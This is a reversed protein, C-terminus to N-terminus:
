SYGSIGLGAGDDNGVWYQSHEVDAILPVSLDLGFTRHLPLNEMVQKTIVSAEDVYDDRVESGIGDHLTMVMGAKRPDLEKELCVMAFLMIDSATGQVPSNIAQREAEMQVSRDRSMIDPLHRVRGMPSVVYQREHVIRRMREHWAVLGPFMEFYKQRALECETMTFHVGYNKAAYNQFKKPYMGYLFGFNVPKAKKREEKGIQDASKGTMNMAQLMHLDQGMLYARKMVKENAIHAAIRLEVQSYDANVFKWGPPAGIISRIFSDRPIQQLDGSLRGTAAGYLKYTTHIRSNRDLNMSWPVLYTNMWKQQLTRYQLLMQVAPHDMYELVADENTSPNGTATFLMPELGLGGKKESTYLWRSVQQVSNFNFGERWDEPMYSKMLNVREDIFGQLLAMRDFLKEQDVWMGRAEVRQIVHSGPMQLKAFLRLLRPNAELEEKVKPRIQWTYGVDNGNYIAMERLDTQLIKEPKLEVMGKYADVGLYAQSLYGLNKPRNEDILHAAIMIDFKHELFVGAGALQVNDHKGNQAVLILDPRELASKMHRLVERWKKKFPSQPHYLPVVYSTKGDWSLGLMQISWDPHWPRYRNEVDYAVVAKPPLAKLAAILQRLGDVSSVYRKKVAMGQLEGRISRAFRRIDESFVTDQGPNRLVYAPHVTAMVFVGRFLPDRVTLQVGRKTPNTIGSTKAVAQLATNGLLLVHTPQVAGVEADLFERCAERESREPTRNNPPRCKVVNTVYVGDPDLGAATLKANLVQGARGSFVKGTTEENEGPAEGIIMIRSEPNGRGMVCTRMTTEHLECRTCDHDALHDLKSTYKQKVPSRM